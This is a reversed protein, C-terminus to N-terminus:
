ITYKGDDSCKSKFIGNSSSQFDMGNVPCTALTPAAQKAYSSILVLYLLCIKVCKVKFLYKGAAKFIM